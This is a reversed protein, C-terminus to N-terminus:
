KWMNEKKWCKNKKKLYLQDLVMMEVMGNIRM